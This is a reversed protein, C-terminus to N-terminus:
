QRRHRLRDRRLRYIELGAQGAALYILGRSDTAVDLANGPASDLLFPDNPDYVDVAYLHGEWRDVLFAVDGQVAIRTPRGITTLEGLTRLYGDDHDVLVARYGSSADAQHLVDGVLVQRSASAWGPPAYGWDFEGRRDVHPSYFYWPQHSVHLVSGPPDGGLPDVVVGAYFTGSGSRDSAGLIRPETIESLDYVNLFPYRGTSGGIYLRDGHVDFGDPLYRWGSCSEGVLLPDPGSYIEFIRFLSSDEETSYTAVFAFGERIRVEELWLEVDPPDFVGIEVPHAPETVDVARLGRDGAAVYATQGDVAVGRAEGKLPLTAVLTLEAGGRIPEQLAEPLFAAGSPPPGGAPRDAPAAPAPRPLSATLAAALLCALTPGLRPRTRPLSSM